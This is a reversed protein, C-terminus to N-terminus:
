ICIRLRKCSRKFNQRKALVHGCCWHETSFTLLNEISLTIKILLKVEHVDVFDRLFYFTKLILYM